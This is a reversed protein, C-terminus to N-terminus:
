CAVILNSNGVEASSFFKQYMKAAVSPRKLAMANCVEFDLDELEELVQSVSPREQPEHAWAKSLLERMKPMKVMRLNPRQKALAFKVAGIGDSFEFYPRLGSFLFYVVMAFSYVDCPFSYNKQHSFVEPAMYRYSGTEGTMHKVAAQKSDGIYKCMGFDALKIDDDFSIMVSTTFHSNMYAPTVPIRGNVPKLDRHVVDNEALFEIAMALQVAYKMKTPEPLKVRNSENINYKSPDPVYGVTCM